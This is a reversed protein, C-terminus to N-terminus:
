KQGWFHSLIHFENTPIYVAQTGYHAFVELFHKLREIGIEEAQLLGLHLLTLEIDFERAIPAIPALGLFSPISTCNNKLFTLGKRDVISYPTPSVFRTCFGGIMLTADDCEFIGVEIEDGDIRGIRLVAQTTEVVTHRPIFGETPIHLFKICLLGDDNAAIHVNSVLLNVDLIGLGVAHVCTEGVLFTRLHGLMEIGTKDIGEAMEIRCEFSGIRPPAITELGALLVGSPADVIEQDATAQGVTEFTGADVVLDKAAVM